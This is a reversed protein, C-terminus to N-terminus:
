EFLIDAAEAGVQEFTAGEVKYYSVVVGCQSTGSGTGKCTVKVKEGGMEVETPPTGMTFDFAQWPGKRVDIQIGKKYQGVTKLAEGTSAAKDCRKGIEAPVSVDCVAIAVNTAGAPATGSVTVATTAQGGEASSYTGEPSLKVSALASSVILGMALATLAGLLAFRRGFRM